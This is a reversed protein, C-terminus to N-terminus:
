KKRKRLMLNLSVRAAQREVIRHEKFAEQQLMTTERSQKNPVIVGMAIMLKSTKAWQRRMRVERSGM